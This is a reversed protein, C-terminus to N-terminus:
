AYPMPFGPAHNWCCAQLQASSPICGDEWEPRETTGFNAQLWEVEERAAALKAVAGEESDTASIRLYPQTSAHHRDQKKPTGAPTPGRAPTKPTRFPTVPNSAKPPTSAEM